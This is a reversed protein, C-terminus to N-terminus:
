AARRPPEKDRDDRGAPIRRSLMGDVKPEIAWRETEKAVDALVGVGPNALLQPTVKLV